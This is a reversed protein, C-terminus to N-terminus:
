TKLKTVLNYIGFVLILIALVIEAALVATNKEYIYMVGMKTLLILNYLLSVGFAVILLYSVLSNLNDRTDKLAKALREKTSM